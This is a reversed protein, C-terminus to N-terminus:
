MELDYKKDNIQHESPAHFMIADAVYSGVKGSADTARFKFWDHKSKVTLHSNVLLAKTM